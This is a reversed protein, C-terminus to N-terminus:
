LAKIMAKEQSSCYPNILLYDKIRQYLVLDSDAHHNGAKLYNILMIQDHSIDSSYNLLSPVNSQTSLRFFHLEAAGNDKKIAMELLYRGKRFHSLKSIPNFLHKSLMLESMARFGLLVAADNENVTKLQEYFHRADEKSNLSRDLMKRCSALNLHGLNFFMFLLVIVKM